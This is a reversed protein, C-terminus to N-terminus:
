QGPVAALSVAEKTGELDEENEGVGPCQNGKFTVKMMLVLSTLSWFLNQRTKMPEVRGKSEEVECRHKRGSLSGQEEPGASFAFCCTYIFQLWHRCNNLDKTHIGYEIMKLPEIKIISDQRIFENDQINIATIRM